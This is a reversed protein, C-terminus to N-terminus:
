GFTGQNYRSHRRAAQAEILRVATGVGDEARIQEGLAAARARMAPDNVATDIAAALTEATLRRIGPIRPGVGLQVVREAWSSQDAAFAAILNPVGARLGAGTTGAGGHHVVAAMRPFLWTHPVNDVVLVTPPAAARALGGWGTLLVGRQGSLELARLALKTQQEPHGLSMSGFGIYVPPPGNDLFRALEPVSEPSWAPPPPLFWYGTLQQYADWDAPKPLVRASYGYLMPIGLGRSYALLEGFSRWPRLGLQQRLPNTMAAGMGSWLMRDMLVHTFYNYGGGLSFRPAGLFFSPFARTPAFPVPSAFAVPVGRQAAAELAGTGTPSQIVFDASQIAAWVDDRANGIQRMADRLLRLLKFVNKGRLAAQTEPQQMAGQLSFPTPHTNVGYSLIWETFDESTALTVRHGAAQMGVALALYPQVDGRAGFTSIVLNM